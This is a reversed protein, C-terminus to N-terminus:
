HFSRSYITRMLARLFDTDGDSFEFTKPRADCNYREPDICEHQTERNRSRRQALRHWLVEYLLRIYDVDIANRQQAENALIYFYPELEINGRLSRCPNLQGGHRVYADRIKSYSAAMTSKLEREPPLQGAGDFVALLIQEYRAVETPLSFMARMNLLFLYAVDQPTLENLAQTHSMWNRAHKLVAAFGQVQGHVRRLTTKEDWEHVLARALLRLFHPQTSQPPPTAPLFQPLAYLYDFMTAALYEDVSCETFSEPDLFDRFRIGKQTEKAIELLQRCGEIIGRRIILYKSRAHEDTWARFQAYGEANKGFAAPRPIFAARCHQDFDAFTSEREGTLFCIQSDPFGTRILQSYIYLGARQHFEEADEYGTPLPVDKPVGRSLNIDIAVVDFAMSVNALKLFDGFHHILAIDHIPSHEGFFRSIVHPDDILNPASGDWHDDFVEVPILNQFLSIATKEGADLEAGFDEIWLINM